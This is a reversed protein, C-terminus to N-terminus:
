QQLLLENYEPHRHIYQAVFPCEAVVRYGHERSDDLAAKVLRSGIGQGALEPPVETHTFRITNDRMQYEALALLDGIQLEFRRKGLNNRVLSQNESM